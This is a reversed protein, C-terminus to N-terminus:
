GQRELVILVTADTMESIKPKYKTTTEAPEMALTKIADALEVQPVEYKLSKDAFHTPIVARPDIKKIVSLAGAGDLTYGNGGVPVIAVDIHGLQEVQEDSLEPHIHGIVAVTTDGSTISFITASNKGKEDMHSRVAIGHIVADGVEYEGPIDASFDAKGAPVGSHTRLSIDDEKTISKLGLKELNDDVVVTAKKTNIRVCNAGYYQIEM